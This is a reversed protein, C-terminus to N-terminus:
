SLTNIFAKHVADYLRPANHTLPHGPPLVLSYTLERDHLIAGGGSQRRVVAANRSAAHQERDAFHQFYGLALTPERWEYFRLTAHGNEVADTLLADDVAMNWPGNQPLDIILRCDSPM